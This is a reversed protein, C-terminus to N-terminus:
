NFVFKKRAFFNWLLVLITAVVKAHMVIFKLYEVLIYMIASNFSLGIVGIVTFVVFEQTKNAEAKTEFVWVCSLFYNVLLGCIFSFVNAILYHVLLKESLLYLVGIDAVTAVGGVFCYKILQVLTNNQKQLILNIIRKYM